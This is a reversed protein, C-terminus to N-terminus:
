PLEHGPSAPGGKKSEIWRMDSRLEAFQIGLDNMKKIIEGSASTFDRITAVLTSNMAQLGSELVRISGAFGDQRSGQTNLMDKLSQLDKRSLNQFDIADNRLGAIDKHISEIEARMRQVVDEQLDQKYRISAFSMIGAVMTGFLPSLIAVVIGIATLNRMTITLKGHGNGSEVM